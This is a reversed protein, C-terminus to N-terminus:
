EVTLALSLPVKEILCKDASCVSFALVGAVKAPGAKEPTLALPFEVTCADEAKEACPTKQGPQLRVREEAFKVAEFGEPKFAVPYDPNVHFGNKASVTIAALAEKGATYPARAEISLAYNDAAPAAKKEATPAPAPAPAPAAEKTCAALVLLPILILERVQRLM